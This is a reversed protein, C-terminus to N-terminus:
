KMSCRSLNHLGARGGDITGYTVRRREPRPKAAFTGSYTSHGSIKWLLLGGREDRSFAWFFQWKGTAYFAV